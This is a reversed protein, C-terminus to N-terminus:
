DFVLASGGLALLEWLTQYIDSHKEQFTLIGQLLVGWHAPPQAGSCGPISVYEPLSTKLSKSKQLEQHCFSEKILFESVQVAQKAVRIIHAHWKAREM